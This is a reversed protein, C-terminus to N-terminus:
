SKPFKLKSLDPLKMGPPLDPSGGLAGFGGPLGAAGYGAGGERLAAPAAPSRTGTSQGSGRGAQKNKGKKVKRKSNRNGPRAGPFGMGAGMKSMM